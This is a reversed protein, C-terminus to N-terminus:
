SGTFVFSIVESVSGVHIEHAGFVFGSIHMMINGLLFVLILLYGGIGKDPANRYVFIMSFFTISIMLMFPAHVGIIWGIISAIIFPKYM